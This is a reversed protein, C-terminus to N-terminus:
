DEVNEAEDKDVKILGKNIMTDIAVNIEDDTHGDNKLQEYIKDFELNTKILNYTKNILKDNKNDNVEKKANMNKMYDNIFQDSVISVKKIDNYNLAMFYLTILSLGWQAVKGVYDLSEVYFSTLIGASFILGVTIYIINKNM